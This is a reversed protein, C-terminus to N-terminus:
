SWLEVGKVLLKASLGEHLTVNPSWEFILEAIAHAELDKPAEIVKVEEHEVKFNLDKLYANLDNLIWFTFQKTEGALVVGFDLDLTVEQILNKDKYIKM